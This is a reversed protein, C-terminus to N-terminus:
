DIFALKEKNIVFPQEASSWVRYSLPLRVFDFGWDAIMKFDEEIFYGPARASFKSSESAFMGLLNFGRYRPIVNQKFM